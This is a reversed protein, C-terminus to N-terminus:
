ESSSYGRRSEQQCLFSLGFTLSNRDIKKFNLKMGSFLNMSFTNKGEGKDEGELPSPQPSPSIQFSDFPKEPEVLNRDKDM